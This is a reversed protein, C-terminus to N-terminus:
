PNAGSEAPRAFSVPDFARWARENHGETSGARIDDSFYYLPWGRYTLQVVGDPRLLERLEAPDIVSPLLATRTTESAPFVPRKATCAPDCSSVAESTATSPKDDLCVYLTRGFGDTLFAYSVGGGEPAFTRATSMFALYDRAVFWRGDVADGSVVHIGTEVARYYLPHGKFTTQWRGDQRHFRSVEQPDLEASPHAIEVDFPPWEHACDYLCASENSRTVDGVFMYLPQGLEDTLFAASDRWRSVRLNPPPGPDVPAEQGADTEAPDLSADTVAIPMSPPPKPPEPQPEHEDFPLPHTMVQVKDVRGTGDSYGSCGNAAAAVLLSATLRAVAARHM